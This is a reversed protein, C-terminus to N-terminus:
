LVIGKDKLLKKFGDEDLIKVNQKKAKDMKSGAGPGAIVYNTKSSVSSSAHGGNEEVLEQAEDRTWSELEGTFVFTLGELPQKKQKALPNKLKVGADLIRQIDDRNNEDTFFTVVSSAVEPGIEHIDRLEEEEAEQLNELDTFHKALVRSMHKGVLPIGLAYLFRDLTQKKSTELEDLINQSAKEKVDDLKMWDNKKLYYIDSPRKLLGKDVLYTVRKDGLGEIDMADVSVFHKIRNQLQAPCKLNTCHTQKKDDSTITKSGCDPCKEPLTFKKESGDREDPMSKVVQPIVDGARKVIVKDGIRIDKSEIESQNHLSARQVTVGGINVPKLVAIPTLKGTRGVQVEIDKIKSTAQRAEFKYAIAWRPNNTRFGLKEHASLEDIKCVMGDIEYPLDERNDSLKNYFKLAEDIGDCRKNWDRNVKLGWNPLTELVHWHTEFAYGDVEAVQYLIIKLPRSATIKPDLQRLSGAAANRPNAFTKDKNKEQKENLKEFDDKRIFVEGRVVLHGPISTNKESILRLPVEKITKINETVNEGTEGDGRTTAMTLKGDDYILEVALGDYKPECCYAVTKKNLEDRCTKDFNLFDSEDNISKLSLMPVPHRVLGLEKQPEGGVQQTPSEPTLLGPYEDELKELKQMLKDFDADPIVPDDLVYYRYNHYRIARRLKEIAQQADEKSQIKRLDVEPLTDVSGNKYAM